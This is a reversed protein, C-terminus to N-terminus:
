PACLRAQTQVYAKCETETQFPHPATFLRWLRGDCQEARNPPGVGLEFKTVFADHYGLFITNFAGPTVPFDPSYTDGALIANGELDVGLSGGSQNEEQTGGLYTSYLLSRGCANTKLLFASAFDSGVLTTQLAGPTTPFNTSFTQGEVFVNGWLDFAVAEAFDTNSGGLYTSYLLKSGDASLHSLFGDTNGAYTKQLANATIPFDSCLTYGTVWAQRQPDLAIGFRAYFGYYGSTCTKGTLYTSYEFSSGTPDLKTVFAADSGASTPEFSRQTTPFDKSYTHGSVYASGSSDLALDTGEEYDSGGIYTAYLLKSGDPNLKAVFADQQGGGFITQAAGATVPFDISTTSASLYADGQRDVALGSFPGYEDASGGLYTSYLLKSGDPSLKAIFADTGGNLSPQLVGRTTPFDASSTWGAVYINRLRDLTIANGQEFNQGGLFTSFVLASGDRTLKSIFVDSISSKTSQLAGKTTPFDAADSYGTIYADGREDVHVAEAVASGQSGGLFTSYALVPDIVLPRSHDYRGLRFAVRHAGTLQFRVGIQTRSSGAGQYAIPKHLQVEGSRTPLILNGARDVRLSRDEAEGAVDVPAVEMAVRRPDSGPRVVFDFELQSHNGYYILDIGPYIDAYRVKAFTSLGSRWAASNNGVFYNATGIQQDVGDIKPTTQLGVPQMKVYVTDSALPPTAGAAYGDGGAQIVHNQRSHAKSQTAPHLALLAGHQTLFISQHQGQALFKVQPDTQGQNPVFGLPLQNYRDAVQASTLHPQAPAAILFSAFLFPLVASLNANRSM